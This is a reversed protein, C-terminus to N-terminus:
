LHVTLAVIAGILSVVLTGLGGILWNKLSDFRDNIRDFRDDIRDLRDEVRDIRHDVQDIRDDIRDFREHLARFGDHMEDRLGSVVGAVFDVLARTQSDTFGGEALRDVMARYEGLETPM